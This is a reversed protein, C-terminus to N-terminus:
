EKSFFEEVVVTEIVGNEGGGLDEFGEAFGRLGDRLDEGGEGGAWVDGLEFEEAGVFAFVGDDFGDFVVEDREVVADGEVADAELEGVTGPNEGAM